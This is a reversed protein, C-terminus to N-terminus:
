GSTIAREAEDRTLFFGIRDVRGSRIRIASHVEYEIERPSGKGRGRMRGSGLVWDNRVEFEFRGGELFSWAHELYSLWAALGSTGRLEMNLLRSNITSVEVDSACLTTLEGLNRHNTARIVRHATELQTAPSQV